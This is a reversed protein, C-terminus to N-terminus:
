LNGTDKKDGAHLTQGKRLPLVRMRRKWNGRWDLVFQSLVM